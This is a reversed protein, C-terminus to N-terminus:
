RDLAWVAGSHGLTDGPNSGAIKHDSTCHDLWQALKGVSLLVEMFQHIEKAFQSDVLADQSWAITLLM